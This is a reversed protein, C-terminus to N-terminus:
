GEGNEITPRSFLHYTAEFISHCLLRALISYLSIVYTCNILYSGFISLLDDPVEAWTVAPGCRYLKM